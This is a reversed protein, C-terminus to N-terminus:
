KLNILFLNINYNQNLSFTSIFKEITIITIPETIKTITIPDLLIILMLLSTKGFTEPSIEKEIKGVILEWLKPLKEPINSGFHSTIARLAHAAGRRQIRNQKNAQFNFFFYISNILNHEWLIVM